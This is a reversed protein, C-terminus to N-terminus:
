VRCIALREHYDETLLGSVRVTVLVRVFSTDAHNFTTVFRGLGCAFTVKWQSGFVCFHEITCMSGGDVGDTSATVEDSSGHAAALLGLSRLTIKPM